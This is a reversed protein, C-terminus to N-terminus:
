KNPIAGSTRSRPITKKKVLMRGVQFETKSASIEGWISFGRIESQFLFEDQSIVVKGRTGIIDATSFGIAQVDALDFKAPKDYRRVRMRWESPSKKAEWVEFPQFKVRSLFAQRFGGDMLRPRIKNDTEEITQIANEPMNFSKYAHLEPDAFFEVQEGNQKWRVSSDNIAFDDLIIRKVRTHNLSEFVAPAKEIYTIQVEVVARRALYMGHLIRVRSFVLDIKSKMEVFSIQISGDSREKIAGELRGATLKLTKSQLPDRRSDVRWKGVLPNTFFESFYLVWSKDKRIELRGAWHPGKRKLVSKARKHNALEFTKEPAFGWQGVFFDDQGLASCPSLVFFLSFSAALRGAYQSNM